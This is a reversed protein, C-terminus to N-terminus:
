EDLHYISSCIQCLLLLNTRQGTNFKFYQCCITIHLHVTFIHTHVESTPRLNPSRANIHNNLCHNHIPYTLSLLSSTFPVRLFVLLSLSHIMAHTM